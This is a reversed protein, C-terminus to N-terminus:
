DLAAIVREQAFEQGDEDVPRNGSEDWFEYDIGTEGDYQHTYGRLVLEGNNLQMSKLINVLEPNDLISININKKSKRLCPNSWFPVSHKKM